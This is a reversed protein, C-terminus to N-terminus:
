IQTILRCSPLIRWGGRLMKPDVPELVFTEDVKRAEVMFGRCSLALELYNDDNTLVKSAIAHERKFKHNHKSHLRKPKIPSFRGARLNSKIEAGGGQLM